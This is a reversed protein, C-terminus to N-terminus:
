YDLHEEEAIDPGTYKGNEYIKAIKIPEVDLMEAQSFEFKGLWITAPLHEETFRFIHGDQGFEKFTM